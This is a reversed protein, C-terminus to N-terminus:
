RKHELRVSQHAYKAFRELVTRDRHRENKTGNGPPLCACLTINIQHYNSRNTKPPQGRKQRSDRFHHPSFDVRVNKRRLIEPLPFPPPVMKDGGDNRGWLQKHLAVLM